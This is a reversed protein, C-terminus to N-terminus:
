TNKRELIESIISPITRLLIKTDSALSLKRAYAIDYRLMEAFTTKNKGNVQWLGTMGPVAKFRSTQWLSFQAAEYTMCPRPGILSMDGRLVNILQPLEDLYCRRIIKGFRFIRDDASEDLKAMPTGSAILNKLHNAHVATDADVHMTRFKWLTFIRGYRGVRQQKLLVPGASSLKIGVALALLVPAVLILGIISGALDMIRKWAPLPEQLLDDVRFIRAGSLSTDQDTEATQQEPRWQGPYTYIRFDPPKFFPRVIDAAFKRAGETTTYPLIACISRPTYWGIEDTQRVRRLLADLLKRSASAFLVVSLHHPHRDCAACERALCLAIEKSSYVRDISRM